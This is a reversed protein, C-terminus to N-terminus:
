RLRGLVVLVSQSSFLWDVSFGLQPEDVGRLGYSWFVAM